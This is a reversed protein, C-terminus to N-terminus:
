PPLRRSTQRRMRLKYVDPRKAEGVETVHRQSANYVYTQGYIQNIAVYSVGHQQFQSEAMWGMHIPNDLMDHHEHTQILIEWCGKDPRPIGYKRMESRIVEAEQATKDSENEFVYEEGSPDKFYFSVKRTWASFLPLYGDGDDFVYRDKYCRYGLLELLVVAQEPTVRPAYFWLWNFHRAIRQSLMDQYIVESEPAVFLPNVERTLNDLRRRHYMFSHLEDAITRTERNFMVKDLRVLEKTVLEPLPMELYSRVGNLVVESRAGFSSSGFTHRLAQAAMVAAQQKTLGPLLLQKALLPIGLSYELVEYYGLGHQPILDGPLCSKVEPETMAPLRHVVVRHDKLFQAAKEQIEKLESPTASVVVVGKLKRKDPRDASFGFDLIDVLRAGTAIIDDKFQDLVFTKGIGSLGALIVIAQSGALETVTALLRKGIQRQTGTLKLHKTM